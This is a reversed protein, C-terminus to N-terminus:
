SCIEVAAIIAKAKNLTEQYESEPDSDAVIGAGAQFYIKKDKLLATRLMIAFDGNGNSSFYGIGGAYFGRKQTELTNIIEMARIKPAGSVTGAPLASFFADIFGYNEKLQGTVNSVIHMVHSYREVMYEDTVHVSGIESIRGVDNRGLDLLMLHEAVEKEDNLLEKELELDQQKTKGRPRTGAIPRIVIQGDQNRVLIEPSAGALVFDENDFYFMYPSPNIHRLTRYFSFYDQNFPMSFRQSPVIQFVDGETIYQKAKIVTDIFSQKSQHMTVHDFTAINSQIQKLPLREPQSLYHEVMDLRKQIINDRDQGDFNNTVIFLKDYVSDFIIVIRPRFLYGDPTNLPDETHIPINEVLRIADYSLYGYLGAASSPLLPDIDCKTKQYFSKLLALPEQSTEQTHTNGDEDLYTISASETNNYQWIADPHCAIISYRGRGAAKEVSECLISKTFYKQITHYAIVPTLNDANYTRYYLKNAM